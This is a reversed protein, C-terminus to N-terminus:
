YPTTSLVQHVVPEQAEFTYFNPEIGLEYISQILVCRYHCLIKCLVENVLAIPTKARVFGGFKAKIM